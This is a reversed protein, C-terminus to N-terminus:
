HSWSHLQAQIHDALKGHSSCLGYFGVCSHVLEEKLKSFTSCAECAGHLVPVCDIGTSTQGWACLHSECPMEFRDCCSLRGQTTHDRHRFKTTSPHRLYTSETTREFLPLQFRVHQRRHSSTSPIHRPQFSYLLYHATQLHGQGPLPLDLSTSSNVVPRLAPVYTTTFVVLQENANSHSGLPTNASPIKLKM